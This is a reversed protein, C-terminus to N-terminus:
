HMEGMILLAAIDALHHKGELHEDQPLGALVFQKVTHKADFKVQQALYGITVGPYAYRQGGDLELDQTILKMLTTKGAGNKGILCIRDYETIHVRLAEFLPKGGFSLTVDDLSVLVREAV